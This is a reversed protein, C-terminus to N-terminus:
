GVKKRAKVGWSSKLIKMGPKARKKEKTETAEFGNDIRLQELERMVAEAETSSLGALIGKQGRSKKATTKTDTKAIESKIQNEKAWKKYHKDHMHHQPGVSHGNIQASQLVRQYVKWGPPGDFSM